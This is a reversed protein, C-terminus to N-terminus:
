LVLRSLSLLSAAHDACCLRKARLKNNAAPSGTVAGFVSHTSPAVLPQAHLSRETRLHKVHIAADHCFSRTQLTVEAARKKLVTTQLTAKAARKKMVTPPAHWVCVGCRLM